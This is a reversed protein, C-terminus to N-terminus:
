LSNSALFLTCANALNNRRFEEWKSEYGRIQLLKKANPSVNSWEEEKEDAKTIENINNITCRLDQLSVYLSGKNTVKTDKSYNSLYIVKIYNLVSYLYDDLWGLVYGKATMIPVGLNIMVANKPLFVCNLACSGDMTVYISTQSMIEIQEEITSVEGWDVCQYRFFERSLADRIETFNAITRNKSYVLTVCPGMETTTKSLNNIFEKQECRALVHSRFNWWLNTDRGPSEYKQNYNSLGREGAGVIVSELCLWDNMNHNAFRCHLRSLLVAPFGFVLKYIGKVDYEVLNTSKSLGKCEKPEQLVTYVQMKRKLESLVSFECVCDDFITHGPHEPVSMQGFYFQGNIKTSCGLIDQNSKITPTWLSHNNELYHVSLYVGPLDTYRTSLCYFEGNRYYLNSYEVIRNPIEGIVEYTTEQM